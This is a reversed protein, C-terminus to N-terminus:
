LRVCFPGIECSKGEKIRLSQAGEEGESAISIFGGGSKIYDLFYHIGIESADQGVVAGTFFTIAAKGGTDSLGKSDAWIEVSVDLNTPFEDFKHIDINECGSEVVGYLRENFQAVREFGPQVM